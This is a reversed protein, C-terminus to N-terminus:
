VKVRMACIEPYSDGKVFPVPLLSFFMITSEVFGHRRGGAGFTRVDVEGGGGGWDPERERTHDEWAVLV